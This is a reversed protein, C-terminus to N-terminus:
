GMAGTFAGITDSGIAPRGELAARWALARAIVTDDHLGEPASYSVRGTAGSVKAEFAELEGRAVADPLWACEMREFALALSQILQPKSTATTVFPVVPLGDAQLAEINPGGISNWEAVVHRVHWHKVLHTLRARQFAWDIQNFRDLAVERACTACVVSIATFDRVQAWDVGAVLIHGTHEAPTANPNATLNAAINRFVSGEGSLFEALYEQAFTLEPLELRASEVEEPDIFPNAVTPMQWAAWDRQEPDIGRQFLAWFYNMGKPTSGFLAGGRFDTLTPRIAQTWAEELNPSLAAEDVVVRKYRRSRGAKPDDLTWAEIVGGTDLEIRRETNNRRVVHGEVALLIDRWADTLYKYNPAFWGVPFGAAAPELIWRIAYLTKGWRRGCDLVNFRAQEAHVKAQAEHMEPLNWLTGGSEGLLKSRLAQRFSGTL